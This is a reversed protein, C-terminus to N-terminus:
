TKRALGLKQVEDNERGRREEGKGEGKLMRGRRSIRRICRRSCHMKLEDVNHADVLIKFANRPVTFLEEETVEPYPLSLACRYSGNCVRWDEREKELM